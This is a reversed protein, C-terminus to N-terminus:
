KRRTTTNKKKRKTHRQSNNGKRLKKINISSEPIYDKEYMCYANTLTYTKSKIRELQVSIVESVSAINHNTLVTSGHNDHGSLGIRIKKNASETM